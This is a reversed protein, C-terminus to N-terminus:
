LPIAVILLCLQCMSSFCCYLWVKFFVKLGGLKWQQSQQYRKFSILNDLNIINFSGSGWMLQYYLYSIFKLVASWVERDWRFLHTMKSCSIFYKYILFTVSSFYSRGSQFLCNPLRFCFFPLCLSAVTKRSVVCSCSSKQCSPLLLSVVSANGNNGMRHSKGM